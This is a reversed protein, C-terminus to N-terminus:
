QTIYTHAFIFYYVVEGNENDNEIKFCFSCDFNRKLYEKIDDNIDVLDLFNSWSRSLKTKMLMHQEDTIDDMSSAWITRRLTEETRFVEPDCDKSRVIDRETYLRRFLDNAFQQLIDTYKNDKVTLRITM